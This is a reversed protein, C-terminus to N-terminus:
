VHLSLPDRDVFTDKPLSRLWDELEAPFCDGKVRILVRAIHKGRFRREPAQQIFIRWKESEPLAKVAKGLKEAASDALARSDRIVEVAALEAFPPYALASRDDALTRLIKGYTESAIKRFFASEPQFTELLVLGSGGALLRARFVRELFREDTRFDSWTLFTDTDVFVVMSIAPDSLHNLLSPVGILIDAQDTLGREVLAARETRTDLATRDIRSIRAYTFAKRIEREVRETGFGVQRFSIHGCGPCSPFLPTHFTCASCAYTGSKEPHLPAQCEPCRFINKCGECLTIKSYGSQNVIVVIKEQRGLAQGIRTRATESLPSYNKRYRELRLNTTEIPAIPLAAVLDTHTLQGEEEAKVDAVTAFPALSILDAGSTEALLGAIRRGDYRPSMDWQKSLQAMTKWEPPVNDVLKANLKKMIEHKTM